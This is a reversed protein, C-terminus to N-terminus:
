KGNEVQAAYTKLNLKEPIITPPIQFIEQETKLSTVVIWFVPFLLVCLLLIAVVSLAINKKGQIKKEEDM